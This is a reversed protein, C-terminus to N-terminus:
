CIEDNFTIGMGNSFLNHKDHSLGKTLADAVQEGTPIYRLAIEGSEVKERIFHHRIAIHKTHDHFMANGALAIASQNDVLLQTADSSGPTDLEHALTRIWVAEKTAASAAMYEAETSSLAVSTEEEVVLKNGRWM